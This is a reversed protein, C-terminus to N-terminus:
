EVDPVLQHSARTTHRIRTIGPINTVEPNRLVREFLISKIILKYALGVLYKRRVHEAVEVAKRAIPDPRLDGRKKDMAKRWRSAQADLDGIEKAHRSLDVNVDDLKKRAKAAAARARKAQRMLKLADIIKGMKRTYRNVGLQRLKRLAEAARDEQRKAAEVLDDAHKQVRAKKWKKHLQINGVLADDAKDRAIERAKKGYRFKAAVRKAQGFPHRKGIAHTVRGIIVEVAVDIFGTIWDDLTMEVMVTGVGVVLDIGPMKDGCGLNFSLPLTPIACCGMDATTDGFILNHCALQVGSSGFMVFSDGLLITLPLLPQAIPLSLHPLILGSANMRGVFPLKGHGFVDGNDHNLSPFAGIMFGSLLSFSLHPAPAPVPVPVAPMIAEHWSLGIFPDVLTHAIHSTM